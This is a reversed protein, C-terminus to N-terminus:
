SKDMSGRAIDLVKPWEKRLFEVYDSLSEHGEERMALEAEQPMTPERAYLLYFPSFGRSAQISCNYVLTVWPLWKAWDNHYENVYHSLVNALTSKAREVQGNAKPNYATTFRHEIGSQKNLQRFLNATFNRGQDAILIKPAGHKSILEDTLFKATTNASINSVVRTILWKTFYDFLVIVYKKGNSPVFPGLCDCAVREFPKKTVIPQLPRGKPQRPM